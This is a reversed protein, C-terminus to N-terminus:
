QCRQYEFQMAIEQGDDGPGGIEVVLREDVRRYEIRRPFDHTRNEFRAWRDGGDTRVFSTPPKGGPQAIFTAVGDVNTIRMFEFAVTNDGDRTHSLGLMITGNAPMWTEEIVRGETEMCWSGSLWGYDSRNSGLVDSGCAMTFVLFVTGANRM